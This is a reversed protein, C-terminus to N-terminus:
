KRIFTVGDLNLFVGKEIQKYVSAGFNKKPTPRYKSWMKVEKIDDKLSKILEEKSFIENLSVFWRNYSVCKRTIIGHEM